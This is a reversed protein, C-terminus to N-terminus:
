ARPVLSCVTLSCESDNLCLMGIEDVERGKAKGEVQQQLVNRDRGETKVGLGMRMGTAPGILQKGSMRSPTKSPLAHANEKNVNKKSTTPHIYTRHTHITRPALMESTPIPPQLLSSPSTFIWHLRAWLSLHLRTNLSTSSSKALRFCKPANRLSPM